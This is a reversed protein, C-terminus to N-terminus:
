KAREALKELSELKVLVRRGVRAIEIRGTKILKDLSPLSVGLALAAVPRPVFIRAADTIIMQMGNEKGTPRQRQDM